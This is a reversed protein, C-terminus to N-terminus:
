MFRLVFGHIKLVLLAFEPCWKINTFILVRLASYAPRKEGFLNSQKGLWRFHETGLLPTVEGAGLASYDVRQQPSM